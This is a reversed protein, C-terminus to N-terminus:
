ADKKLADPTLGLRKAILTDARRRPLANLLWHSFPEPTVITNLKAKRDTLAAHVAKAVREPALGTKGRSLMYALITDLADDYDTGRYQDPDLEEAKDWIPTRIPGPNIAVCDIGYLMLERRLGQTLAELAFKSCAYPTVLPTASLGAVSSMNVVRGGGKAGADAGRGPIMLPVFGQVVRLQGTVNIELQRQLEEIPLHLLPGAVAVGANNVLGSLAAGNLAAKVEAGARAVSDGDTVDIIVPSIRESLAAVREADAPKRVGAFVRWGKKAMFQATAFGIGTSAGTIMVSKDPRAM